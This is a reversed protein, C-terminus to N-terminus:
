FLSPQDEGKGPKRSKTKRRDSEHRLMRTAEAPEVCRPDENRANNVIPNVARLAMESAPYPKLLPELQAADEIAADLWKDYDRTALIVPMRDHLPRVLENADTTIISCTEVVGEPGKWSEWLGAFAFPEGDKLYILYPERQKPSPKKWEYFGDAPVLCRRQKFAAQFAPKTAVSEARANIMRAGGRLDKSWYPVLGWRLMALQRGEATQRIAPVPQTPAINYRFPLEPARQLRFHRALREGSTRLTYRGCM